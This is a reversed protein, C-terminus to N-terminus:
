ITMVVITGDPRLDIGIVHAGLAMLHTATAKGIGSAVGTVVIRTGTLDM